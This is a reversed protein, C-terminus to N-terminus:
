KGFQSFCIEAKEKRKSIIIHYGREKEERWVREYVGKQDIELKHGKIMLKDIKTPM